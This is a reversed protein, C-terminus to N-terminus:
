KGGRDMTRTRLSSEGEKGRTSGNKGIAYQDSHIM